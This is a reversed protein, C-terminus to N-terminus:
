TSMESRRVSRMPELLRGGIASLGAIGWCVVLALALVPWHTILTVVPTLRFSTEDTSTLWTGLLGVV